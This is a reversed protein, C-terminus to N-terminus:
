TQRACLCVHLDKKIGWVASYNLSQKDMFTLTFLCFMIPLVILDLKRRVRRSEEETFAEDVGEVKADHEFKEVDDVIPTIASMTTRTSLQLQYLSSGNRTPLFGIYTQFSRFTDLSFLEPPTLYRHVGGVM